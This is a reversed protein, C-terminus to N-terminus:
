KWRYGGNRLSRLADEASAISPTSANCFYNVFLEVHHNNLSGQIRAWQSNRAKSWTGDSRGFAYFRREGTVCRMGEYTISKAGASSVVVLTYRIVDDSGVSLSRSDIQFQTDSVAGVKFAVLNEAQPFAPLQVEVELWSKEEFDNDFGRAAAPMGHLVLSFGLFLSQFSLKNM